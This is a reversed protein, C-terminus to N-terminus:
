RDDVTPLVFSFRSGLGVVSEVYVQGGHAEVISRTILLGLGSGRPDSPDARWSQVFLLPLVEAPIGPGQDVISFRCRDGERDLAVLLTSDAPSFKIANGVLNSFVRLLNAYNVSVDGADDAVVRLRIDSREALPVMLQVADQLLRAASIRVLHAEAPAPTQRSREFLEDVMTSLSRTARRARDLAADRETGALRDIVMLTTEVVQLPTRLDHAVEALVTAQRHTGAHAVEARGVAEDLLRRLHIERTAALALGTMLELDDESWAHPVFDIACFSGIVQGGDMVIPIGVYSRVGLTQVTPVAAYVPDSMVDDIVLPGDGAIAHHCFTRGELQRLSVLPEGFGVHSKYFDRESDVLSIFAAPAGTIRAALRTLRDFAEEADTDLLGTARVAALRAPDSLVPDPDPVPPRLTTM